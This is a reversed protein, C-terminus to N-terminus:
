KRSGIKRIRPIKSFFQKIIIPFRTMITKVILPMRMHIPRTIEDGFAKLLEDPMYRLKKRFIKNTVSLGIFCGPCNLAIEKASSKEVDKYKARQGRLISKGLNLTRSASVFGCSLNSDGHHPLEVFEAGTYKYLKRLTAAFDKGLGSVYCSESIAAKFKLPNKVKLEGAEVKEWLWEYMSILKFPLKKGYVKPLNQSLFYYCSGCYCVMREVDLKEFQELTREVVDLYCQYSVLRYALEGCCLNPPSFKPLEKLVSSHEIDYCSLRGICGIWMIDKSKPPIISWKKLIKQEVPTLKAYLDQFLNGQPNGTVLYPFIYAHDKKRREIIRQLILEHPRLGEPCFNNCNYCLTCEEFVRPAKEGNLLHQVEAKADKRSINIVPCKVLCDGCTTCKSWDCCDM